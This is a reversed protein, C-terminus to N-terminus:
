TNNRARKLRQTNGFGSLEAVEKLTRKGDMLLDEAYALRRQRLWAAPSQGFRQQFAQSFHERSIGAENAIDGMSRQRYPDHEITHFAQELPSLPGNAQASLWATLISVFHFVQHSNAQANLAQM